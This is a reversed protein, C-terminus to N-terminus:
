VYLGTSAADFMMCVTHVPGHRNTIHMRNTVSTDSLYRSNACLKVDLIGGGRYSQIYIYLLQRTSCDCFM